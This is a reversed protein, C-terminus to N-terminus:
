LSLIQSFSDQRQSVKNHLCYPIGELPKFFFYLYIYFIQRKSIHYHSVSKLVSCTSTSITFVNESCTEKFNDALLGKYCSGSIGWLGAASALHENTTHASAVMLRSSTLISGLTLVTYPRPM